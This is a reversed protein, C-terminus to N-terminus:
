EPGGPATRVESAQEDRRALRRPRETCSEPEGSQSSLPQDSKLFDAPSLQRPSRRYRREDVGGLAIAPVPLARAIAAARLPGLTRAGPHSRTAFVPSVPRGNVQWGTTQPQAFFRNFTWEERRDSNARFMQMSQGPLLTM